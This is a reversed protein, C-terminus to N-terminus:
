QETTWSSTLSPSEGSTRENNLITKVIRNNNNKTKNTKNNWIFKLISREIDTFLQTQSNSSSQM